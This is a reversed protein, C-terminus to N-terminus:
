PAPCLTTKLMDESLILADPDLEGSKFGELISSIQDASGDLILPTQKIPYPLVPMVTDEKKLSFHVSHSNSLIQADDPLYVIDDFAYWPDFNPNRSQFFSEDAEQILDATRLTDKLQTM